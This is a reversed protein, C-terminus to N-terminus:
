SKKRFAWFKQMCYNLPVTILLSFVPALYESLGVYNVWFLLLLESLLLSTFGYSIYTKVLARWICRKEGNGQPFVTRNNWYFSWLVSLIFMLLQAVYLDISPFIHLLRMIRLSVVYIVYGILTNSLGVIGFKIFQICDNWKNLSYNTKM